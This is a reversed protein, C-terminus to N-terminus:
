QETFCLCRIILTSFILSFFVVLQPIKPNQEGSSYWGPPSGSGSSGGYTNPTGADCPLYGQELCLLLTRTLPCLSPSSLFGSRFCSQPALNLLGLALTICTHAITSLSAFASLKCLLTCDDLTRSQSRTQSPVGLGCQFPGANATLTGVSSSPKASFSTAKAYLSSDINPSGSDTFFAGNLFMDGSSKWNWNEWGGYDNGGDAVRKTVQTCPVECSLGQCFYFIRMILYSPFAGHFNMRLFFHREM